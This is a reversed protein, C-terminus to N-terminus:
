HNLWVCHNWPDSNNGTKWLRFLLWHYAWELYNVSHQPWKIKVANFQVDKPKLWFLVDYTLYSVLFWEASLQTQTEVQSMLGTSLLIIVKLFLKSCSQPLSTGLLSSVSHFCSMPGTYNFFHQSDSIIIPRYLATHFSSRMLLTLCLTGGNGGSNISQFHIHARKMGAVQVCPFLRGSHSAHLRPLWM